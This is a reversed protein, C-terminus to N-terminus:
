HGTYNHLANNHLETFQGNVESIKRLVKVEPVQYKYEERLILSRV